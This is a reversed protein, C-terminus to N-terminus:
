KNSQSHIWQTIAWIQEDMYDVQNEITNYYWPTFEPVIVEETETTEMKSIPSTELSTLLDTFIREVFEYTFMRDHPRNNHIRQLERLKELIPPEQAKRISDWVQKMWGKTEEERQVIDPMEKNEKVEELYGLSIYDILFNLMNISNLEWKPQYIKNDIQITIM